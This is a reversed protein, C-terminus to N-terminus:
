KLHFGSMGDQHSPDKGSTKALLFKWPDKQIFLWLCCPSSNATLFCLEVSCLVPEIILQQWLLSHKLLRTFLLSDARCIWDGQAIRHRLSSFSAVFFSWSRFLRWSIKLIFVLWSCEPISYPMQLTYGLYLPPHNKETSSTATLLLQFESFLFYSFSLCMPLLMLLPGWLGSCSTVVSQM